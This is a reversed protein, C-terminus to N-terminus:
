MQLNGRTQNTLAAREKMFVKDFERSNRSTFSANHKLFIGYSRDTILVVFIKKLVVQNQLLSLYISCHM